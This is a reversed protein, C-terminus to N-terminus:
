AMEAPYIKFSTIKTLSVQSIRYRFITFVINAVFWLNIVLGIMNMRLTRFESNITFENFSMRNRLLIFTLFVKKEIDMTKVKAAM